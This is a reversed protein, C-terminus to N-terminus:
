CLFLVFRYFFLVFRYFVRVNNVNHYKKLYKILERYRNIKTEIEAARAKVNFLHGMVGLVGVLEDNKDCFEDNQICIEWDRM